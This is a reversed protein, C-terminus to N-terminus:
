RKFKWLRKLSAAALLCLGPVAFLFSLPLFLSDQVVNNADLRGGYFVAHTIACGIGALLLFAGLRLVM